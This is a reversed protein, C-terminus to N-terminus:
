RAFCPIRGPEEASARVVMVERPPEKAVLATAIKDSWRRGREFDSLMMASIGLSRAMERLGIGAALRRERAAEGFRLRWSDRTQEMACMHHEADTIRHMLDRLAAKHTKMDM